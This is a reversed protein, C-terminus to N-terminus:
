FTDESPKRKKGTLQYIVPVVVLTLLTSTFLGGIVTIALGGSILGSSSDSLALPVLALITACATMLIPRVRNKSGEVIAETMEMGTKWNKEVRDLLVVANTVVIGVLMLMGIMASMSLSQGTVLLAGLSGVPVFLLSSLIILPTKLGGFTMSMVLFVLFIASAMAIGLSSFGSTIMALGGGFSVEVGEPLALSKIDNQVEKTVSSTSADGKITGSIKAYAKGADHNVTVPANTEALDAIQQLKMVGSATPISINELEEKSSIAQAYSMTISSEKNDLTYTGVDVPRIQENVAQMVQFASVNADIGTQNLSLVWKPTVDQLNNTIDKLKTNQKMLDNVQSAAKTLAEQNSSYLSVDIGNGSPPGEQQGAKVNVTSNPVAAVVIEKLEVNAKDMMADMETDAAFQVDITAKNTNGGASQFPGRGGGGGISVQYDKVGTLNKVYEEVKITLANTEAITSKSPLTLAIEAAPTSGAPLFSVGLLPITGLSAVLLATAVALVTKKRNLAGRIWKEYHKILKGEAHHPKVKNFFKAGMVPILMMAVFLSAIISSVVAIAFPRFFEGIIGSVFALPLFVVVTAITSSAVAGIVEKTARYALERGKLETGKEQRWRYINEIIVISDDVIRGISVAIGGLTMINLTYGMQNLLAITAFISIPLSLISIITARVNRLFLFIIIICFLIGFLGERILDAVSKEIEAGQDQIVHIDLNSDTKFQALIAKAENSVEATNADQTKTIHMVYSEKGNFRTIQDQTGVTTIAAIDSLKVKPAAELGAAGRPAPSLQLDKIKQLSSLNGVLRIPITTSDQNISGLPLAYDLAQIAAQITNLSIGQQSAKAKDVEINLKDSKTGKLEVSNVGAIKSLKPVVENELLNQLDVKSNSDAAFIAAEYIPQSGASFRMVSVKAKSPLALKAIASEVDATVTDMNTGFAFTLSINAANEASTSTLSDYDKFSLLSQEVPATVEEEVEETSAGPYSVQVFVAPFSIDPFTQQKIQTSSYLGYGLVLVCLIVVAVGNKLSFRSIGSM